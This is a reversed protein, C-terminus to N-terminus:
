PTPYPQGWHLVAGWNSPAQAALTQGQACALEPQARTGCSLCAVLETRSLEALDHLGQACDINQPGM